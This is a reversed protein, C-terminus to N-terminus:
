QLKATNCLWETLPMIGGLMDEKSAPHNVQAAESKGPQSTNESFARTHHSYMFPLAVPRIWAGGGKVSPSLWTRCCIWLQDPVLDQFLELDLELSRSPSFPGEKILYCPPQFDPYVHSNGLSGLSIIFFM